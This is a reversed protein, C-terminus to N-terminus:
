EEILAISIYISEEPRDSKNTKVKSIKEVVSMGSIVEGCVTYQNDLHPAGGKKKYKARNEPNFHVGYSKEIMDLSEDSQIDGDVIYFTFPNSEKSRSKGPWLDEGAMAFAGRIHPYRHHMVESPIKYRGISAMREYAGPGDTFGAQIIFNKTVRYFRTNNFIGNKIMLIMSARHLPTSNYLKVKIDGFTTKIIFKTESNEKGYAILRDEAEFPLIRQWVEETTDLEVDATDANVTDPEEEEFVLPKNPSIVPGSKGGCGVLVIGIALIYFFRKM